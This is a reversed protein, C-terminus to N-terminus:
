AAGGALDDRGIMRGREPAEASLQAAQEPTSRLESERHLGGRARRQADLGEHEDRQRRETQDRREIKRQARQDEAREEPELLVDREAIEIPRAVGEIEVERLELRRGAVVRYPVVRIRIEVAIAIAEGVHVEDVVGKAVIAQAQDDEPVEACLHAERLAEIEDARARRSGRAIEGEER